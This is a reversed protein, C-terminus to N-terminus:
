TEAVVAAVVEMSFYHDAFTTVGGRIMEACALRAGLEVDKETLNSALPWVYDNFWEDTAVDEAVGRLTVMPAHTHCNILGPMAVQGHADIREEAEVDAQGTSVSEILGDRVVITANEEFAIGEDEEHVLATCRTVVLDARRHRRRNLQRCRIREDGQGFAPGDRLPM